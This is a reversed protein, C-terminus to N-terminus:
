TVRARMPNLRQLWGNQSAFLFMTVAFMAGHVAWIGPLPSLDGREVWVKAAGLLNYYIIFVLVGIALKGYRGQRPRTRSLPIALLALLLTSVPVSWRWQLEAISLPDNRQRLERTLAGEPGADIVEVAPLAYPIGYESFEFVQFAATGPVGVYRRGENLVIFRTEDSDNITQRGRQALVVEVMQGERRQLFVNSLQGDDSVAEAFIVVGEAGANVFRGAELASLDMQRQTEASIQDIRQISQPSVVLALWAVAIALPLALWALPRILGMPGIRCAMMAPLESDSYLRALSLMVALFLGFPVIITLYQLATLGIVSFVADKAVKDRAADGLVRAFQNSLLITLLVLTVSLWSQGAEKLIYRDLIRFM